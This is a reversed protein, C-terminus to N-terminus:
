RRSQKRRLEARDAAEIEEATAREERLVWWGKTVLRMPPVPVNFGPARAKPSPASPTGDDPLDRHDM